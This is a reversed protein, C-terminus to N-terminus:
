GTLGRLRAAIAKANPDDRFTELLAALGVAADLMAWFEKQRNCVSKATENEYCGFEARNDSDELFAQLLLPLPAHLRFWEPSGPEVAVILEIDESDEPVKETHTM